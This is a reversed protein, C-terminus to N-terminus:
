GYNSDHKEKGVVAGAELCELRVGTKMLAVRTHDNENTRRHDTMLPTRLNYASCVCRLHFLADENM